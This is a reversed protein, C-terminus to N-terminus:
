KDKIKDEIKDLRKDILYSYVIVLIFLIDLKEM